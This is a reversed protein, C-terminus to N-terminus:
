RRATYDSESAPIANQIKETQDARNTFPASQANQVTTRTTVAKGTEAAFPKPPTTIIAVALLAPFVLVKM